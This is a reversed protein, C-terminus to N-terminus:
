PLGGQAPQGVGTLKRLSLKAPRKDKPDAELREQTVRVLLVPNRQMDTHGYWYALPILANTSWVRLVTSALLGLPCASM